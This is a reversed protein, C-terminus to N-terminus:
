LISGNGVVSAGLFGVMTVNQALGRLYFTTAVNDVHDEWPHPYGIVIQLM